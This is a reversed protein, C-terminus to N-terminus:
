AWNRYRMALSWSLYTKFDRLEEAKEEGHSFSKQSGSRLLIELPRHHCLGPVRFGHAPVRAEQPYLPAVYGSGLLHEQLGDLRLRPIVMMAAGVGPKQPLRPGDVRTIRESERRQGFQLNETRRRVPLCVSLGKKERQTILEGESSDLKAPSPSESKESVQGQEERDDGLFILM